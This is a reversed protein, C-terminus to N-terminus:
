YFFFRKPPEKKTRSQLFRFDEKNYIHRWPLVHHLAPAQERRMYLRRRVAVAPTFGRGVTQAYGYRVRNRCGVWRLPPTEGGAHMFMAGYEGKTMRLPAFFRCAALSAKKLRWEPPASGEALRMIVSPTFVFLLIAFAMSSKITPTVPNSCAVEVDRVYREVM